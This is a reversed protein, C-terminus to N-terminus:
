KGAARVSSTVRLDVPLGVVVRELPIASPYGNLVGSRLRITAGEEVIVLVEKGTWLERVVLTRTDRDVDRGVGVLQRSAPRTRAKQALALAPSAATLVLLSVTMAFRGHSLLSSM